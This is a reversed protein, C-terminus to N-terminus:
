GSYCNICASDNRDETNDKPSVSVSSTLDDVLVWVVDMTEISAGWFGPSASPQINLGGEGLGQLLFCLGRAIIVLSM